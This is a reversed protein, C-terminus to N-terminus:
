FGLDPTGPTVVPAAPSCESRCPHSDCSQRLGVLIVIVPSTVTGRGTRSASRREGPSATSNWSFPLPSNTSRL